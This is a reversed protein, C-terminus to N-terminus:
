IKHNDIRGIQLQIRLIAAQTMSSLNIRIRSPREGHMTIAAEMGDEVFSLIGRWLFGGLRVTAM